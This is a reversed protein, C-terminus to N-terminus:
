AVEKTTERTNMGARDCARESEPTDALENQPIQRSRRFGRVLLAGLESLRAQETLHATNGRRVTM